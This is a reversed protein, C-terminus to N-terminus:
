FQVFKVSFLYERWSFMEALTHFYDNEHFSCSQMQVTAIVPKPLDFSIIIGILLNIVIAEDNVTYYVCACM